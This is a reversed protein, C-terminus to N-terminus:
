NKVKRRVPKQEDRAVEGDDPPTLRKVTGCIEVQPVKGTAPTEGDSRSTEEIDVFEYPIGRSDLRRRTRLTDESQDSGVLTIKPPM